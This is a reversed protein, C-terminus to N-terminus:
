EARLANTSLKDGYKAHWAPGPGRMYHQEPRYPDFAAVVFQRWFTAIGDLLGGTRAEPSAAHISQHSSATLGLFSM